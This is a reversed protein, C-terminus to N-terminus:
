LFLFLSNPKQYPLPTKLKETRRSYIKYILRQTVAEGKETRKGRRDWGRMEEGTLLDCIYFGYPSM